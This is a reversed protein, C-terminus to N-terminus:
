RDGSQSLNIRNTVKWFQMEESQMSKDMFSAMSVESIDLNPTLHISCNFVNELSVLVWNFQFSECILLSKFGLLLLEIFHTCTSSLIPSPHGPRDGRCKGLGDEQACCWAAGNEVWSFHVIKSISLVPTCWKLCLPQLMKAVGGWGLPMWLERNFSAWDQLSGMGNCQMACIMEGIKIIITIKIFIIVFPGFGVVM